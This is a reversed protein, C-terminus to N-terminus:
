SACSLEAGAPLAIAGVPEVDGSGPTVIDTAVAQGVSGDADCRVDGAVVAADAASGVYQSSTLPGSGGGQVYGGGVVYGGEAAPRWAITLPIGGISTSLHATPTNADVSLSSPPLQSAYGATECGNDDCRNVNVLLVPGSSEDVGRIDLTERVGHPLSM